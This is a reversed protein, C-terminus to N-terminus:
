SRIQRRIPVPSLLEESPEEYFSLQIKHNPDSYAAYQLFTLPHFAWAERM